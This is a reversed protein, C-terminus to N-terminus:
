TTGKQGSTRTIGSYGGKGSDPTLPSTLDEGEPWSSRDVGDLTDGFCQEDPSMKTPFGRDKLVAATISSKIRAM